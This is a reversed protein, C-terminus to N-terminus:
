IYGLTRLVKDRYPGSREWREMMAREIAHRADGGDSPHLIENAMWGKPPELVVQKEVIVLHSVNNTPQPVNPNPAGGPRGQVIPAPSKNSTSAIAQGASSGGSASTDGRLGASKALSSGAAGAALALGAFAAAAAAHKAAGGFDGFALSALAWAAQRLAEIASEASVHALYEALAAKLAKGISQGYLINAEIASGFADRMKYLGQAASNALFDNFTTTKKLDDFASKLPSADEDAKDQGQQIKGMELQHRRAENERLQHYTREEDYVKGHLVAQRKAEAEQDDLAKEAEKHRENEIARDADALAKNLSKRQAFTPNASNRPDFAEVQA